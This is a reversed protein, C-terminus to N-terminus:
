SFWAGKLRLNKMKYNIDFINRYGSDVDDASIAYELIDLLQKGGKFRPRKGTKARIVNKITNIDANAYPRMLRQAAEKRDRDDRERWGSSYGGWVQSFRTSLSLSLSLPLQQNKPVSTSFLLRIM